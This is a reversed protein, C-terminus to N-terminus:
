ESMWQMKYALWFDAYCVTYHQAEIQRLAPRLDFGGPLGRYWEGRTTIVDHVQEIRPVLLALVVAAIAIARVRFRLMEQAAFAYIFPLASVIYRVTGPLARRSFFYFALCSAITIIPVSIPPRRMLAMVCFPVILIGVMVGGLFSWLDAVLFTTVHEPVAA